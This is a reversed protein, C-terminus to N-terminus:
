RSAGPIAIPARLPTNEYAAITWGSDERVFVWLGRIADDVSVETAGPKYAGGQSILVCVDDRVYNMEVPIGLVHTGKWKGDFAAKMWARIAPRGKLYTDGPLVVSADEAYLDSLTDADGLAWSTALSQVVARLALQGEALDSPSTSTTM